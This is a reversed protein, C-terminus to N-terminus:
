SSHRKKSLTEDDFKVQRLRQLCERRLRTFEDLLDDLSKGKSDTFQAFRDFPVFRKDEQNGLIINLRPIWDTKEGHIYHGVVDYPSWTDPGENSNTWEPDLDKLLM